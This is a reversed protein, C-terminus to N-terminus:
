YEWVVIYIYILIYIYIYQVYTSVEGPALNPVKGILGKDLRIDELFNAFETVNIGTKDKDYKEFQTKLNRKEWESIMNTSNKGFKDKNNTVSTATPAPIARLRQVETSYAAIEGAEKEKVYHGIKKVEAYLDKEGKSFCESVKIKKKIKKVKKEKITIPEKQSKEFKKAKIREQTTIM